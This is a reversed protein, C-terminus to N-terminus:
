LFLANLFLVGLDAFSEKYIFIRLKQGSLVSSFIDTVNQKNNNDDQNLGYKKWKQEITKDEQIFLWM